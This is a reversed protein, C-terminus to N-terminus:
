GAAVANFFKNAAFATPQAIAVDAHGNVVLRVSNNLSASYPDSLVSMSGWEGIFLKSWDGFILPYNGSLAPVLTTSVAKHGVLEALYNMLFIGSGEDVKTNQLLNKLGPAMLFALSQESADAAEIAAVLELVLARTPVVAAASSGAGIGTTNLVGTPQNSAGSGNIAASNIARDYAGFLLQRITGEVNISSQQLLRNSIEVASGLRKPSLTPGDFEGKAPTIAATEALWAFSYNSAVPLPVDGGTLNSWRTAGLQELVTRGAFPMQVRPANDHVLQGGYSGSDESVTQATARLMSMPIHLLARKDISVGADRSEQAGLDSMEKEVGDLPQGTSVLNLARTISAQAKINRAEKDESDSAPAGAVPTGNLDAARREAADIAIAREILPDFAEIETTLADFRTQQEATFEKTESSRVEALLDTQAQVKEAREQRLEALKKM